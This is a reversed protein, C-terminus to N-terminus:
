KRFNETAVEFIKQHRMIEVVYQWNTADSTVFCFTFNGFLRKHINYLIHPKLMIQVYITNIKVLILIIVLFIILSWNALRGDSECFM